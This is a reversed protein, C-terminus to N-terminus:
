EGLVKNILAIIEKKQEETLEHERLLNVIDEKRIM